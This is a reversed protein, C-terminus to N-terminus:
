RQVSKHCIKDAAELLSECIIDPESILSEQYKNDIFITFCGARKGCEIDRWRDGIFFSKALNIRYKKAAKEILGTGPKYDASTEDWATLIDDLPLWKKLLAHMEEVVERRQTGRLPDPQNTIVILLFGANVFTHIAEVVGPMLQFDQVTQPPYAKGNKILPANLVGDRDLFIASREPLETLM